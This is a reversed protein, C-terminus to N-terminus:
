FVMDMLGGTITGGDEDPGGCDTICSRRKNYGETIKTILLTFADVLDDHKENGFGVIQQILEEAGRIPFVVTGNMIYSSILALRARKDMGYIKVAEVPLGEEQKLRQPLAAQYGVDEIYIRPKFDPVLTTYLETIKRVTKPHDMRENVPFPLIYIRFDEGWGCVVAGVMATYDATQKESIAPDVAFAPFRFQTKSDKIDPLKDYYKVWERHIVRDSYDSFNLLYEQQWATDNGIQKRQAKIAEENPYKGPWLINNQSDILPYRRYIGDRRGERIDKELRRLLGDDHLLNGIVVLRTKPSGAPIIEKTLLNYTKNRGDLTKVSASNELDDAIILDPRHKGYKFGRVAQDASVAMIRTGYNPIVLAQSKWEDEEEQFPGLDSRLLKNGEIQMRVNKLHAKAQDQTQCVIIIFKCSPKGLVSWLLLSTNMITSKASGRFAEIFISKHELNETLAFMDRQFDATEYEVQDAFYINFFLLHSESALARRVKRDIVIQKLLEPPLALHKDNQNM